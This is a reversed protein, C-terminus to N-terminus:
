GIASRGGREWFQALAAGGEPRSFVQDRGARVQTQIQSRWAPDQGLRAAIAVYEVPNAAILEPCGIGTLIGASQRSRLVPGALTVVPQGCAIADLTTLFGTFGPTDLIADALQILHWYDSHALHPLFHCHADLDLGAAAFTHALRDRFAQELPATETAVFVLQATPVARALDAYLHDAQPLYKFRSQCALYLPATDSCGFDTRTKALAPPTPHPLDIGIGPLRILTETYDRDGDPPELWAPSFFYDVVPSGTTIPHGWAACQVPALRMGALLTMAPVMGVDLFVVGDLRDGRIQAAVVRCWDALDAADLSAARPLVTFQDVAEAIAATVADPADLEVAYAAVWDDAGWQRDGGRLWGGFVTGVTHWCLGASIYGIRLPRDPDLNPELNPNLTPELNPHLSREWPPLIAAMVEAVWEGYHQQSQRDRDRWANALKSVPQTQSEGVSERAWEGVSERAWEDSGDLAGFGWYHAYFRTRWALAPLFQPAIAPDAALRARSAAIWAHLGAEHRDRVAVVDAATPIVIPGLRWQEARLM